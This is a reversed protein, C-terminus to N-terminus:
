TKKLLILAVRNTKRNCVDVFHFVITFVLQMLGRHLWSPTARDIQPLPAQPLHPSAAWLHGVGVGRDGWRARQEERGGSCSSVSEPTKRSFMMILNMIRKKKQKPILKM